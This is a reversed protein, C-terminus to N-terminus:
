PAVVTAGEDLGTIEVYGDNGTFVVSVEKNRLTEGDPVQVKSVGNEEILYRKPLRLVNTRKELIIDVDANLGSRLWPIEADFALKAEFYSVGDIERALPSIFIIHASLKESQRADFVVEAKQDLSIKTIDIEPVLATLVYADNTTITIVPESGVIEGVVPHVKTVIGKFPASLVHNDMEAKISELRAEAQIVAADSRTRAEERPEAIDLDANQEALILAQEAEEIANERQTQALKYANENTVYSASRTNPIQIKWTSNGYSKGDVFQIRLGCVGFPSPSETTVSYTGTEIGSLKYSYGSRANSRFVDLTYTGADCTYTGSVAPFSDEPENRTPLAELDTSLMSRYANAVRKDQEATIRALDERAIAVKTQTIHEEEPRIGSILEDRNAKTIALAAYADNYEARIDAYNLAALIQDKEIVDGERVSISELIGGQPFALDATGGADVSGSISVINQVDGRSATTTTWTDSPKESRLHRVTFIIIVLFAIAILIKHKKLAKPVTTM